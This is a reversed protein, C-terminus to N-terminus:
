CGLLRLDDDEEQADTIHAGLSRLKQEFQEYGRRLHHGEELVTRGTATLGALILAAGARLDRVEVTAGQLKEVGVVKAVQGSLQINAGMRCLEAVHGFRGEYITERIRSEGKALAAVAMVIAQHDTAFEPFPGTTVDIPHIDGAMEVTMGNPAETVTAGFSR